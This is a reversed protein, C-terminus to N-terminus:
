VSFVFYKKPMLVADFVENVRNCSIVDAVNVNAGNIMVKGDKINV